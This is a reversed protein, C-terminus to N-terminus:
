GAIDGKSNHHTDWEEIRDTDICSNAFSVDPRKAERIISLLLGTSM